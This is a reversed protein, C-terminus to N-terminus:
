CLNGNPETDTEIGTEKGFLPFAGCTGQNPEVDVCPSEILCMKWCSLMGTPHTGDAATAAPPHRGSM